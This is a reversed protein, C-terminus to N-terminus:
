ADYGALLGLIVLPREEPPVVTPQCFYFLLGDVRARTVRRSVVLWNRLPVELNSYCFLLQAGMVLGGTRTVSHLCIYTGYLFGARALMCINFSRELTFKRARASQLISLLVPHMIKVSSPREVGARAHSESDRELTTEGARASKHIVSFLRTNEHKLYKMLTTKTNPTLRGKRSDMVHNSSHGHTCKSSFEMGYVAQGRYITAFGDKRFSVQPHCFLGRTYTPHIFDLSTKETPLNLLRNLLHADKRGEMRQRECVFM